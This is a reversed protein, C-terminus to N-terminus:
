IFKSSVKEFYNKTTGMVPFGKHSDGLSIPITWDIKPSNSIKQFSSWSINNVPNGIRFVSYLLLNLDNTKAGVILDVGSISNSFSEKAQYRLHEVGLIVFMSISMAFITLFVSGKRDLLSKFALRILM